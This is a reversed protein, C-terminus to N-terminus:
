NPTIRWAGRKKVAKWLYLSILSSTCLPARRSARSTSAAANNVAGDAGVYYARDSDSSPSNETTWPTATWYPESVLPILARHRRYDDITLLRVAVVPKGYDKMGDMSTLNIPREVVAEKIGPHENLWELMAAEIESGVFNNRRTEKESDFPVGELVVDATVVFAASRDECLKVFEVGDLTFREGPRIQCLKLNKM